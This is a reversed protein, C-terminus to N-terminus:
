CDTPIARMLRPTARAWALSEEKRLTALPLKGANSLHFFLRVGKSTQARLSVRRFYFLMNCIYLPTARTGFVQGVVDEFLGCSKEGPYCEYRM